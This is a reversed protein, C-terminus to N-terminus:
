SSQKAVPVSAPEPKLLNTRRKKTESRRTKLQSAFVRLTEIDAIIEEPSPRDSHLSKSKDHGTMWTSAKSINLDIDHADKDEIAVEDLKLTHISNRYRCVVSFFLVEEVCAEWSERLLGYIHAAEKNYKPTDRQYLAKIEHTLKKLEETRQKVNKAGWPAGDTAIGAVDAERRLTHAALAIPTGGKALEESADELEMLFAINHTFIIVQRKLAEQALRLAIKRTFVHDLSSVPDDLVIANAHPALQLEALFGAIAIVRTEGESLVQSMHTHGQIIAGELLMEHGTEGAGGSPKVSIPLRGAGLLTLETKFSAILEPTLHKKILSTGFRTIENTRLTNIAQNLIENNRATKVFTIIDNKRLSLAKRSKLEQVISALKSYEEPKAALNIEQVKKSISDVVVLLSETTSIPWSDMEIIEITAEHQQLLSLLRSKRIAISQHFMRLADAAKQDFSGVEDCSTELLPGSFPDLSEIKERFSNLAASKSALVRKTADEMYKKFRTFRAAAEESLPQQCLVCVAESTKPFFDGIYAVEESYKKAANYLLQWQSASPVGPLPEPAKSEALAIKYADEAFKLDMLVRLIGDNTIESCRDFLDASNKAAGGIRLKIKELRTVEQTAKTSESTRILEIHEALRKEDDLTWVTASEIEQDRTTASLTRLFIESSTGVVIASDQILGPIRIQAEIDGKVKVVLEVLKQFVDCGYPLYNIENREDTIVRACRGDFVSINTLVPDPDTGQSWAISRPVSNEKINLTASAIGTPSTSFVNPLILEDKDRAQCALKLIRSYGSKGSGNDGYIATVGNEAFPQSQGSKIINVNQVNDISLLKISVLSIPVGSIKGPTPPTSTISTPKAGLKFEWKALDLIESYDKSSLSTNGAVLLRRVADGQWAPLSDNAWKIIDDIAAM